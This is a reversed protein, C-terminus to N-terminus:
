RRFQSDSGNIGCSAIQTSLPQSQKGDALNKPYFKKIEVIKEVKKIVPDRAIIEASSKHNSIQVLITISM